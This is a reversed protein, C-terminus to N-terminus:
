VFLYTNHSSSIFYHSLPHTTDNGIPLPASSEPDALRKLFGDFGVDKSKSEDFAHKAHKVICPSLGHTTNDAM